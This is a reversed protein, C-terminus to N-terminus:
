LPDNNQKVEASFFGRWKKASPFFAPLSSMYQQYSEGFRSLMFCMFVGANFVAVIWMGYAYENFNDM